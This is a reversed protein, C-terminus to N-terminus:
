EIYHITLFYQKGQWQANSNIEFHGNVDSRTNGYSQSHGCIVPDCVVALGVEAVVPLGTKNNVIQGQVGMHAFPRKNCSPLLFFGSISLIFIFKAKRM